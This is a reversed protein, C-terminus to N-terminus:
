EHFISLPTQIVNVDVALNGISRVAHPHRIPPSSEPALREPSNTEIPRPTQRV